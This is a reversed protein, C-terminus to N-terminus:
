ERKRAKKYAVRLKDKTINPYLEHIQKYLLEKFPRSINTLDITQNYQNILGNIQDNESFPLILTNEPSINKDIKLAVSEPSIKIGMINRILLYKKEAKYDSIRNLKEINNIYLDTVYIIKNCLMIEEDIINFGFAVIIDDYVKLLAETMDLKTYDVNRYNIIDKKIDIFDLEPVSRTLAETESYDIVLVKKGLISLIRAMYQINDFSEIGVFAVVNNAM